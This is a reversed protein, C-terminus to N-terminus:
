QELKGNPGVADSFDRKTSLRIPLRNHAVLEIVKTSNPHPEQEPADRGYLVVGKRRALEALEAGVAELEVPKGDLEIKGDKAIWIRVSPTDAAPPSPSAVSPPAHAGRGRCGLAGAGLYILVLAAMYLLKM